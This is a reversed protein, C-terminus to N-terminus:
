HCTAAYHNSEMCLDILLHIQRSANLSLCSVRNIAFIKAEIDNEDGYISACLQELEALSAWPVRRPLRM